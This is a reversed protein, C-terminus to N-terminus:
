CLGLAMGKNGIGLESYLCAGLGNSFNGLGQGSGNMGPGALGRGGRWLEKNLPGGGGGGPGLFGLYLTFPFVGGLIDLLGGM